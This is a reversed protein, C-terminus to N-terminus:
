HLVATRLSGTPRRPNPGLPPEFSSAANAPARGRPPSGRGVCIKCSSRNSSSRSSRPRCRSRSTSRGADFRVHAEQDGRVISRWVQGRARGRLGGRGGCRGQGQHLLHRLGRSRRRRTGCRCRRELGPVAPRAALMAEAAKATLNGTFV